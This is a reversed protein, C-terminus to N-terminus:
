PANSGEIGALTADIIKLDSRASARGVSWGQENNAVHVRALLLAKVAKSLKAEAREARGHENVALDCLNGNKAELEEAYAEAKKTDARAAQLKRDMAAYNESWVAIEKEHAKADRELAEIRAEAAVIRDANVFHTNDAWGTIPADYDEDWPVINASWLHPGWDTDHHTVWVDPVYTNGKATKRLEEDSM